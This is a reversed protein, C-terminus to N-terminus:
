CGVIARPQDLASNGRFDSFDPLVHTARLYHDLQPPVANTRDQLQLATLM